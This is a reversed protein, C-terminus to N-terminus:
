DLGCDDSEDCVICTFDYENTANKVEVCDSYHDEVSAALVCIGQNAYKQHWSGSVGYCCTHAYKVALAPGGIVCANGAVLTAFSTAALAILVAVSHM